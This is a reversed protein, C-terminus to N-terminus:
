VRVGLPYVKVERDRRPGFMAPLDKGKQWCEECVYRVVEPNSDSWCYHMELRLVADRSWCFQCVM